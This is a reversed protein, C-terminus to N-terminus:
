INQNESKKAMESSEQQNLVPQPDEIVNQSM